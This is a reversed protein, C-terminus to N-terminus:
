ILGARQLLLLDETELKEGRRFMEYVERARRMLEEKERDVKSKAQKAKLAKIVKDLDKM